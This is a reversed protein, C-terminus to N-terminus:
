RMSSFIGPSDMRLVRVDASVHAEAAQPTLSAQQGGDVCVPDGVQRITFVQRLFSDELPRSWAGNVM